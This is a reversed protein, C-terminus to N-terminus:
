AVMNFVYGVIECFPPQKRRLARSLLRKRNANALRAIKGIRKLDAISYKMCVTRIEVEDAAEGAM